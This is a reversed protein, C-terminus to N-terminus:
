PNIGRLKSRPLENLRLQLTMSRFRKATPTLNIRDIWKEHNERKQQRLSGEM